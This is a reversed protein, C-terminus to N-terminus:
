DIWAKSEQLFEMLEQRTFSKIIEHDDIGVVEEMLKGKKTILADIREEFSDKTVLKFVQVGRKQGIRHVRDTAQNERAANWWRDYHIVVSASTLDIGLGAAQLSAVFVECSPDHKFRRLQEARNSTSGRIAAFGVGMEALYAEIIDLMMLYQSYVVIKQQSERAESLLEVFLDWKGSTYNKYKDPAKLYVAPHDCIQKLGSLLSFIHVYSLQKSDDQLDELLRARGSRLVENYLRAQMPSLDCHSVEEIKAPLDHLVEEKRRRMVFPKIMRSLLKKRGTDVEKEIPRIFYDRYDSESPMYLPLVIDFLAKLERLHNEIPTGTLGIRMKANIGVLTAYLRSNHNKALQVEDFVALEFPIKALHESDIRSIGYSTLLIDYDEHFGQLTRTAGYFTHVRLHPLHAALKEQWHYIVSTPCVVLIHLPGVREQEPKANFLAAILAMTQHTKGLGMDDCLLGSLGHHYLFWLWNVGLKQYPRLTSVLGALNPDEPPKLDVLAQLLIHSNKQKETKVDKITIEDIAYLRMLEITSLKIVHKQTDVQSKHLWRLWDFRKDRINILGATSFIFKKKKRMGTWLDVVDVSGIESQYKLKVLYKLASGQEVQKELDTAVLELSIPKVLRSDISKIYPQLNHVEQTLFSEIQDFEIEVHHSFRDPLHLGIPMEHFGENPVYTFDDFFQVERGQYEPKLGYAPNVVIKSGKDLQVDVQIKMIPSANSFFGHVVLLEERNVKIFLPIQNRLFSMGARLHTGSSSEKSYFGRGALYVWSGFDQSDGVNDKVDLQGFFSLRGEETVEYLLQSEISAPHVHFGEQGNLWAKNKTIFDSIDDFSIITEVHLFLVEELPYFGDDDIYAWSGFFRSDPFSLDGPSFLYCTLHLNWESDFALTYSVEIPDEHLATGEVLKNMLSFNQTLTEAIEDEKIQKKSLLWHPDKAYFGDLPVFVWRDLSIGDNKRQRRQDHLPSDDARFSGEVLFCGKRKDYIIKKIEEEPADYVKLLSRVTALTPIITALNAESMYFKLDMEKFSIVLENPIGKKSYEYSIRYSEGSDQLLMLHKALDNWFSLEYKLHASPHGERWLKLEEQSLNSFKLSTEETDSRRREFLFKLLAVTKADKAKAEFLLKGGVSHCSYSGNGEKKLVKPDDGLRDAYLRGMENWLSREFRRDLSQEHGNFIRLYAACIHVCPALEEGEEADCFYDSLEGEPSLQLFTWIEQDSSDDKVQVQYTTSSFEIEGILGKALCDKAEIEFPKLIEPLEM